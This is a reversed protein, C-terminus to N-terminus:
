HRLRQLGSTNKTGYSECLIYVLVMKSKLYGSTTKTGYSKCLIYVLVMKSNLYIRIHESYRAHTKDLNEIIRIRVLFGVCFLFSYKWTLVNRFYKLFYTDSTILVMICCGGVPHLGICRTLACEEKSLAPASKTDHNQYNTSSGSARM